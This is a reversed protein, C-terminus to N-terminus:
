SCFLPLLKFYKFYKFIQFVHTIITVALIYCSNGYSHDPHDPTLERCLYPAGEKVCIELGARSDVWSEIYHFFPVREGLPLSAPFHCHVYMEISHWPKVTSPAIGGVGYMKRARHKFCLPWMIKWMYHISTKQWNHECYFILGIVLIVTRLGLILIINMHYM